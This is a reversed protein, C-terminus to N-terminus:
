SRGRQHERGGHGAGLAFGAPVAFGEILGFEPAALLFAEDGHDGGIVPLREGTDPGPHPDGPMQGLRQM